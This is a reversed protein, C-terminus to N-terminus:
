NGQSYNKFLHSTKGDLKSYSLFADSALVMAREVEAETAEVFEWPNMENSVPNFTKFLKNGESSRNNGIFNDTIM